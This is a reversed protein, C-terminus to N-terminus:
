SNALSLREGIKVKKSGKAFALWKDPSIRRHLTIGIRAINGDRERRGTFQAPIVKTDNFVLADGPRLYDSLDAFKRDEFQHQDRVVLLRSADRPEAPRLAINEEPLNFDFLDVQM